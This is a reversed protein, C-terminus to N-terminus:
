EHENRRFRPNHLLGLGYFGDRMNWRDRLKHVEDWEVVEGTKDNYVHELDTTREATDVLCDFARLLSVFSIRREKELLWQEKLTEDEM